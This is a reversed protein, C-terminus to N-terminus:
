ARPTRHVAHAEARARHSGDAAAQGLEVLLRRPAARQGARGRQEQQEDRDGHEHRQAVAEVGADIASTSSSGGSIAVFPPRVRESTSASILASVNLKRKM